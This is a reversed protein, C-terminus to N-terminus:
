FSQRSLSRPDDGVQHPEYLGGRATRRWPRAPDDLDIVIKAMAFGATGNSACRAAWTGNPAAIGAPAEPSNEAHVAFSTWYSNSAAHGLMEAAFAAGGTTSFLVCDVGRREYDIYSEPYHAEMGLTCGFRIGDVEFTVPAVGPTYMFSLKTNSLLREDYRTVITGTDSVVYLSSHPRHPPSLRHISGLAVWLGIDSALSRIAELEEQLTTWDCRGWDAPGINEPGTSSMVRKNPSCTAGEPFHLLRAGAARAERMLQRMGAAAARLEAANGPDGFGASQAVALQLSKQPAVPLTGRLHMLATTYSEGTLAARTRVRRKFNANETMDLGKVDRVSNGLV